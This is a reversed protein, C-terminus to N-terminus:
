IDHKDIFAVVRKYMLKELVKSMTMLLSIPRYNVLHDMAQNKYSQIVKALKMKDPFTGEYLSQNFILTSPCTLSNKLSKLLVNSVDNHGSSSKVPLQDIIQQVKEQTTPVLMMSSINKPIKKLYDETKYQGETIESALRSRLTSYFKGFSNPIEDPNDIRIGDVTIFPIISVSHRMKCIVKNIVKWLEKTNTKFDLSKIWYYSQQAQRKLRNYTNRYEQYANVDTKTSNKQLTKKYLRQKKKASQELSATMWPEVFRRKVSIRVMHLPTVDDMARSIVDSLIDFNTNM